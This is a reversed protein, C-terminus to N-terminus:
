CRSFGCSKCISCGDEHILSNSCEPCVGVVTSTVEVKENLVSNKELVQAIADSCSLITQGKKWRTPSPCRIGKIQKVISKMQIGSRLGLSIMRCTAEIQSSACGGAKGMQSFVECIGNDDKNITVYLNGCGTHVKETMGTTISPRPRPKSHSGLPSDVVAPAAEKKKTETGISLVQGDRSGDRYITVGKCRTQYAMMFVSRIDEITADHKFNVTKSVANDVYKQFIAQTKIHWEPSIDHSTVFIKKVEEPIEEISAINGKKAVQEMLEKSYFGQAKAVQEFLPNVEIFNANDLVNRTYCIAFLPEIGSSCNALMSITGTPAITTTTANRVRRSNSRDYISKKFNKFLGREEGLSESADKSKEQIFSMVKEAVELAENSNYSIGMKILMDSYGMVGLGVKRNSKTMRDIEPLPYKNVDIVNDLFRISLWVMRELKKYDIAGDSVMNSLNISGLNCAEFPLLPQEGCPNTSEIEGIQPTPNDENIRDIFVIGPEGNRWASEVITDFVKKAQLTGIVKQSHPDILDYSENKEVKEMFIETLAVSINFNNISNEDSKCTIFQMIDPHDVRLIGMNAGRRTGGQKIVETATDFVRMFSIPGSSVGKTSRVSSNRGRLRSFSFGTGGGSKHILATNKVADFISEMDDEIPLVFCASLQGLERGANMLTPSNPLFDLDTMMSYYNQAITTVDATPDFLKEANAITEAVRRFMEEPQETPQGQEDRILYRKELVTRATDTIAIKEKYIDTSVNEDNDTNSGKKSEVTKFLDLM